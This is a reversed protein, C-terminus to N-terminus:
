IEELMAKITIGINKNAVNNTHTGLEMLIYLSDKM